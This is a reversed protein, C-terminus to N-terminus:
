FGLLTAESCKLGAGKCCPTEGQFTVGEILSRAFRRVSIDIYMGGVCVIYMFRNWLKPKLPFFIMNWNHMETSCKLTEGHKLASVNWTLFPVLVRKVTVMFGLQLQMLSTDVHWRVECRYCTMGALYRRSLFSILIYSAYLFDLNNIGHAFTKWVSYADCKFNCVSSCSSRCVSCMGM